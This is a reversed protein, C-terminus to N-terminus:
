RRRDMQAGGAARRLYPQGAPQFWRKPVPGEYFYTSFETHREWRLSGTGWSLVYHRADAQPAAVGRARALAALVASDVSAGGDTMFALQLILRPSGILPYPRAHVEGLALPRDRAIPFGFSGNAM